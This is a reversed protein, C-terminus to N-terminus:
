IRQSRSLDRVGASERASRVAPVRIPMRTVLAGHYKLSKACWKALPLLPRPRAAIWTLLMELRREIAEPSCITAVLGRGARGIREARDRDRLLTVVGRAFAVADDAVILHEGSKAKLGQAGFSTTVVPLGSAMAECVKGKMGGGYRLPAISVAARDLYPATDPVYGVVEIGAVRALDLVEAPPHTGVVTLRADPVEARVAPWAERAFWLLGDPNPPHRFGGVFLLERGRAQPPRPRTPIILPILFTQPVGGCSVLAARDEETVTIVADAGRYVGLERLRNSAVTGADLLGLALGAEERLFHVDVSDVIAGAWPQHWRFLGITAEAVPWFEFLAADYIRSLVLRELPLRDQGHHVHVGLRRLHDLYRREDGDRGGWLCYLDVRNRGRALIELLAVFRRDGAAADPRPLGPSVALINLGRPM